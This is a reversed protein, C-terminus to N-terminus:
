AGATPEHQTAWTIAPTPVDRVAVRATLGMDSLILAAHHAFKDALFRTDYGILVPVTKSTDRYYTDRIYLGIAYVAREVNAFTFNEAIIARWGDTGFRIVDSM